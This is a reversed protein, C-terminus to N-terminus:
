VPVAAQYFAGRGTLTYDAVTGAVFVSRGKKIELSEGTAPVTIVARGGVCLLIRATAKGVTVSITNDAGPMIASLVFEGAGASYVSEAPGIPRPSLPEIVSSEFRLISLLEAVDVHKTTLGGRLVNDSNAMLEVGTGELYAHLRGAPLFLADGPSLCTLNMFLPALAGIDGPYADALRIIWQGIAGEVGEVGARSVAEEVAARKRPEAMTLLAKFFQQLGVTESPQKLADIALALARPCAAQLLRIMQSVPRFGCLAWFDTLACICEPKHNADRYNRHPADLPIHLANERAFGKEAQVRDPHAQISLPRDIALVKFLYPLQDDFRDSVIKGLMAAPNRAIADALSIGKGNDEILSPAKPHAGMWLEAQPTDAPAPDGLLEALATRSGWAYTMIKNKLPYISRM